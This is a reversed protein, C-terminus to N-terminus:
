KEMKLESHEPKQNLGVVELSFLNVPNMQISAAFKKEKTHTNFFTHVILAIHM